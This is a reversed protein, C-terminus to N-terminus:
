VFAVANHPCLGLKTKARFVTLIDRLVGKFTLKHKTQQAICLALKCTVSLYGLVLWYKGMFADSGRM